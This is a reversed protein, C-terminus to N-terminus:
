YYYLLLTTIPLKVQAENSYTAINTSTFDGQMKQPQRHATLYECFKVFDIEGDDECNCRIWLSSDFAPKDMEVWEKLLIQIQERDIPVDFKKCM